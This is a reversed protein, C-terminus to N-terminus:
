FLTIDILSIIYAEHCGDLFFRCYICLLSLSPFWFRASHFILLGYFFVALSSTLLLPSWFLWFDMIIFAITLGWRDIIVKFVFLNFVQILLCLTATHIFFCSGVIHQRCSIRKLKLSVCLSFTFLHFITSWAFTFWCLASSSDKCWVFYVKLRFTYFYNPRLWIIFPDIWWSSIVVTLVCAGM